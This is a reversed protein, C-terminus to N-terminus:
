LGKTRCNIQVIYVSYHAKDRGVFAANDPSTLCKVCRTNLAKYVSLYVLYLESVGMRSSNDHKLKNNQWIGICWFM